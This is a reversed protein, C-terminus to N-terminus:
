GGSRLAYAIIGASACLLLLLLRGRARSQVRTRSKKPPPPALADQDHFDALPSLAEAMGPEEQFEDRRGQYAALRQQDLRAQWEPYSLFRGAIEEGDPPYAGAEVAAKLQSPRADIQAKVAAMDAETREKLRLADAASMGIWLHYEMEAESHTLAPDERLREGIFRWKNDRTSTNTAM